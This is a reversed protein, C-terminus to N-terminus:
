NDVKRIDKEKVTIVNLSKGTKSDVFEVVYDSGTQHIILITGISGIPVKPLDTVSCVVDYEKFM